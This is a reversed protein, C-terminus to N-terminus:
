FLLEPYFRAPLWFGLEAYCFCRSLDYLGIFLKGSLEPPLDDDWWLTADPELDEFPPVM